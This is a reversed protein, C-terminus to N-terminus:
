YTAPAEIPACNTRGSLVCDEVKQNSQLERTLFWGVVFLLVVVGLAILSQRRTTDQQRAQPSDNDSV